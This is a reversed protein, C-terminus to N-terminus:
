RRRLASLPTLLHAVGAALLLYQVLAKPRRLLWLPRVPMSRFFADYEEPRKPRLSGVKASFCFQIASYYGALRRREIEEPASRLVFDNQLARHLMPMAVPPWDLADFEDDSSALPESLVAVTPRPSAGLVAYVLALFYWGTELTADLQALGRETLARRRVIFVSLKLIALPIRVAEAADTIVRVPERFNFQRFTSGPPQVFSSTLFDPAAGELVDLVRRIAGPLPVDDDGFFWVFDTTAREYLSRVNGDFGVNRPQRYYKVAPPRASFERVVEATHDSSANDAVLITLRSALDQDAIEEALASLLHALKDARNYTPIAITVTPRM